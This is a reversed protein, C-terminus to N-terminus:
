FQPRADSGNGAEDSVNEQKRSRQRTFCAVNWYCKKNNNNNHTGCTKSMRMKGLGPSNKIKIFKRKKGKFFFSFTEVPVTRTGSDIPINSHATGSSGVSHRKITETRRCRMRVPNKKKKKQCSFEPVRVPDSSAVWFNWGNISNMQKVGHLGGSPM